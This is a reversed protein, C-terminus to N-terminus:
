LWKRLVPKLRGVLGRRISVHRKLRSLLAIFFREPGLGMRIQKGSREVKIVRGLLNELPVFGDPIEPISDGQIFPLGDRRAVVRHVILKGSERCVFAVVDGVKFKSHYFPAVTIVDGDKIFPAMSVGRACFRFPLGKALVDKM